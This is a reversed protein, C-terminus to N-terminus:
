KGVASSRVNDKHSQEAYCNPCCNRQVTTVACHRTSEAKILMRNKQRRDVAAKTKRAPAQRSDESKGRGGKDGDRIPWRAETSKLLIIGKGINTMYEAKRKRDM